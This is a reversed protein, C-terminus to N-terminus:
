AMGNGPACEIRELRQPAMESNGPKRALRTGRRQTEMGLNFRKLANCCCKWGVNRGKWEGAAIPRPTGASRGCPQRTTWGLAGTGHVGGCALRREPRGPGGSRRKMARRLAPPELLSSNGRRGRRRDVAETFDFGNDKWFAGQRAMSACHFRMKACPVRRLAKWLKRNGEMEPTSDLNILAKRIRPRCFNNEKKRRSSPRGRKWFESSACRGQRGSFSRAAKEGRADGVKHEIETEM